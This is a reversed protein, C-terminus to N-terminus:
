LIVCDSIRSNHVRTASAHQVQIDPEVVPRINIAEVPEPQIAIAIAIRERLSKRQTIVPTNPYVLNQRASNPM